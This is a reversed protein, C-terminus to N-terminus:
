PCVEALLMLDHTIAKLAMDRKRSRATHGHLASGLNRKLM